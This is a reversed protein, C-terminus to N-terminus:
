CRRCRAGWWSSVLVVALTIPQTDTTARINGSLEFWLNAPLCTQVSRIGALNERLMGSVTDIRKQVLRFRAFM